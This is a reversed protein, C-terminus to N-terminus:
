HSSAPTKQSEPTSGHEILEVLHGLHLQQVIVAAVEKGPVVGTPDGSTQATTVSLSATAATALVILTWCRIRQWRTQSVDVAHTPPRRTTM